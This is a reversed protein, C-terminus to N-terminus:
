ALDEADAASDDIEDFEDASAASGGGFSDGDRLFQIGRLQANIRKGYQNDQTWLEINANVYCGAYIVGDAETLPQRKRDVVTPRTGQQSRTSIYINGEFGSWQAKLDGDHYPMRDKAELEKKVGPWKAGWKAKGVEECAKKIEAVFPHNPPILLQASYAPEGEGNVTSPKFVQPFALRANSISLKM